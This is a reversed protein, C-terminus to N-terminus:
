RHLRNFHPREVTFYMILIATQAVAAALLGPWSRFVLALGYTQLYGITYMPNAVYRYPGRAVPGQTQSPDFFNVWYYANPGLTRAAWLKVGLGLAILAVGVAITLPVPVPSQFTRPTLICLLIFCAADTNMLVAAWRRFRQFGAQAGAVRTFVADREQRRLAITVFGAYVLRSVIAAAFAASQVATM